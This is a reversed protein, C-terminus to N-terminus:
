VDISVMQKALLLHSSPQWASSSQGAPPSNESDQFNPLEAGRLEEIIMWCPMELLIGLAWGEIVCICECSAGLMLCFVRLSPLPVLTIKEHKFRTCRWWETCRLAVVGHLAAGGSRAACRRVRGAAAGRRRRALQAAGRAAADADGRPV